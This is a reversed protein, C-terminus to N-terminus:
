HTVQENQARQGSIYLNVGFPRGNTITRCQQLQDRFVALDPFSRPTMFGMAGANVVAGVYRADALWMLGGCLIPHEINFLEMLRTQFHTAM